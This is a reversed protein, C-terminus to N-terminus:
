VLMRMGVTQNEWDLTEMTWLEKSSGASVVQDAQDRGIGIGSGSIHNYIARAV